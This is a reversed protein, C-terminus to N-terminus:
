GVYILAPVGSHIKTTAEVVEQQRKLVEPYLMTELDERLRDELREKEREAKQAFRDADMRISHGPIPLEEYKGRTMSLAEYSIALAYDRIWQKGISNIKDFPINNFPLTNMNNVGEVGSQTTSDSEDWPDTPISFQFWLKTPTNGSPVPFLRLKNNRLTYGFHSTRTWLSDEFLMAQLKNQWTPMVEFTSDDAYQGYTTLKGLATLGGFNGYFRWMSVPTKYFIKKIAVRRDGVSSSFEPLAAVISQLDYDQVGEQIDISASYVNVNGGGGASEAALGMGVMKAYSFSFRPFRLEIDKGLLSGTQIEGQHNFSATPAGLYSGLSNKAQHVNVFESFKLVAREYHSYVMEPTLEIDLIAGGIMNYTYKVQAVAGTIFDNSGTYTGIPVSSAVDAYTGTLPLVSRSIQSEPTLTPIAM